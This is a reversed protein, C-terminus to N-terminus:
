PLVSYGDGSSGGVGRPGAPAPADRERRDADRAAGARVIDPAVLPGIHPAGVAGQGLRENCREREAASLMSVNACGVFSNRLAATARETPSPQVSIRPRAVPRVQTPPPVSLRPPILLPAIEAEPVDRRLKRRHLRIPEPPAAGPPAPPTRPMILVPIVPEPPGAQEFPRRLTPAHYAVVGVVVLHAVISLAMATANLRRRARAM